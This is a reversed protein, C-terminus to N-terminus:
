EASSLMGLRWLRFVTAGSICILSNRVDGNGCLHIEFMAMAVAIFLSRLCPLCNRFVCVGAWGGDILM